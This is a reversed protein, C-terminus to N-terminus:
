QKKNRDAVTGVPLKLKLKVPKAAVPAADAFVPSEPVGENGLAVAKTEIGSTRSTGLSSLKIKTSGHIGASPAPGPGLAIPPMINAEDFFKSRKEEFLAAESDPPLFLTPPSGALNRLVIFIVHWTHRDLECNCLLKSAYYISDSLIHKDSQKLKFNSTWSAVEDWAAHIVAKPLATEMCWVALDIGALGGKLYVLCKVSACRMKTHVSNDTAALQLVKLTENIVQTPLMQLLGSPGTM